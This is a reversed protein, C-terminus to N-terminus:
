KYYMKVYNQHIVAYNPDYQLSTLGIPHWSELVSRSAGVPGPFPEHAEKASSPGEYHSSISTHRHTRTDLALM